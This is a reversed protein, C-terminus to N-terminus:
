SGHRKLRGHMVSRKMWGTVAELYAQDPQTYGFTHRAREQLAKVVPEPSPFDMDAVWMPLIRNNGFCTDSGSEPSPDQPHMVTEWKVSGTHRRDIEIDFNTPMTKEKTKKGHNHCASLTFDLRSRTYSLKRTEAFAFHIIGQRKAFEGYPSRVDAGAMFNFLCPQWIVPNEYQIKM